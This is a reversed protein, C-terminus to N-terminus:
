VRGAPLTLPEPVLELRRRFADEFLPAAEKYTERLEVTPKERSHLHLRVTETGIEVELSQIRGARSRELYEALRLCATLRRLLKKDGSHLLMEYGKTQPKGKEHHRVMLTLLVQERHSFGHLPKSSLLYAGHRYHHYFDVAVGIDHLAAAADLLEKERPGLRHLPMLGDFLLGALRRVHETHVHPVPYRALRSEVSFRRVDPIRYDPAPLFHRHFAGERMGHGSVVLGDRRTKRLRWRFVLAAAAIVDARDSRIGPIEAREAATRNLLLETLVELDILRLFYGHILDIPYGIQKQVARALNRLSGGMGVLPAPDRRVKKAWSSLRKAVAAELTAVEAATPPDSRLYAETLRVMGLPHAGGAEFTRDTMRSAQVSGGGLDVVWADNFALSNAVADVGLQAEETGSLVWLDLDLAAIDALFRGRNDAERLASTGIVQLRDLDAAGAFDCILKLATVARDISSDTLHSSTGFGEALRVVERIQDEISYWLGPECAFVVLRATNSGLDVIGIRRPHPREPASPVARPGRLSPM